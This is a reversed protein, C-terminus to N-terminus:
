QAVVEVGSKGLKILTDAMAKLEESQTIAFEREYGGLELVRRKMQFFEKKKESDLAGDKEDTYLTKFNKGSADKNYICIAKTLADEIWTKEGGSLKKISKQEGSDNDFVTIDFVEKNGKGDAKASQTDIRVVFRGGFVKLLENAISSIQPGADDLELAVIGDNGFAKELIAWQSIEDNLFTIRANVTELEAKAKEIQKLSEEVAGLHRKFGDQAERKVRIADRTEALAAWLGERETKIETTDDTLGTLQRELDGIEQTLKTVEADLEALLNTQEDLLLEKEYEMGPIQAEVAELTPLKDLLKNLVTLKDERNKLTDKIVKEAVTKQSLAMRLTSLDRISKKLEDIEEALAVCVPDVASEKELKAKLEPISDRAKVAEAMLNCTPNDLPCGTEALTAAHKEATELNRYTIIMATKQKENLGSLEKEKKGIFESVEVLGDIDKRLTMIEEACVDANSKINILEAEVAAKETAFDKLKPIEEVVAKAARISEDKAILKSDIDMSVKSHRAKAATILLNKGKIEKEVAARSDAIHEKSAITVDIENIRTQIKPLQEDELRKIEYDGTEIDMLLDSYESCTAGETAVTDRARARDRMLIDVKGALDQKVRRSNEGIASLHNINLLEIFLDKIDGKSYDSLAKANQARFISTFFLEPSGVIEEIAKDYPDLKGDVSSIANFQGNYYEQLYAEQKKRDTDIKILSRYVVGDMEFIFQKEADGETNEYYSFASPKYSNGARYPMVRFPHLNDLITTKGSGNPADFVTIGPQMDAFDITVEDLGMGSKIGKFGKLRLKLPKMHRRRQSIRAM